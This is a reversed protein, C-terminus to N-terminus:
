FKLQFAFIVDTAVEMIKNLKRNFGLSKFPKSQDLSEKEYELALDPTPTRRNNSHISKGAPFVSDSSNSFSRSYPAVSSSIHSDTDTETVLM